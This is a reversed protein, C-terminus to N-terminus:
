FGANLNEIKQALPQSIPLDVLTMFTEKAADESSLTVKIRISAPLEPAIKVSWSESEMGDKGIYTFEIRELNESLLYEVGGTEGDDDLTGDQRRFLRKIDKGEISETRYGIEVIEAGREDGYRMAATSTFNLKERGAEFLYTFKSKNSAQPLWVGTLDRSLRDLIILGQSSIERGESAMQVSEQQFSFVYYVASFIIALIALSIILDVLTFGRKRNM